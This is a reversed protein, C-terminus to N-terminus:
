DQQPVEGQADPAPPEQPQQNEEPSPPGPPQATQRGAPPPPPPEPQAPPSEEKPRQADAGPPANGERGEPGRKERGRRRGRRGERLRRLEEESPREPWFWEGRPPALVVTGRSRGRLRARLEEPDYGCLFNGPEFKDWHMVAVSEPKLFAVTREIHNPWLLALSPNEAQGSWSPSPGHSDGGHFVTVEGFHFLYSCRQCPKADESGKNPLALVELDRVKFRQFAEVKTVRRNDIGVEVARRYIGSPGWLGCRNRSMIEHLADAQCHDPHDHTVVVGALGELEGPGLAPAPEVHREEHGKWRFSGGFYPDVLVTTGGATRLLFCSHCIHLLSVPRDAPPPKLM